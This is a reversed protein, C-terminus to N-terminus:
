ARADTMKLVCLKQTVNRIFHTLTDEMEPRHFQLHKQSLLTTLSSSIPNSFFSIFIKAESLNTLFLKM